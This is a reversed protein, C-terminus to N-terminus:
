GGPAEAGGRRVRGGRLHRDRRREGQGDRVPILERLSRRVPITELEGEEVEMPEPEPGRPEATTAAAEAKVSIRLGRVAAMARWARGGGPWRSPGAATCLAAARLWWLSPLASLAGGPAAALAAGVREARGYLRLSLAAGGSAAM